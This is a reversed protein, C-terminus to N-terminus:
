TTARTANFLLTAMMFRSPDSFALDFDQALQAYMRARDAENTAEVVLKMLKLVARVFFPGIVQDM